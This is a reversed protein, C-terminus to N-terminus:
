GNEAYGPNVWREVTVFSEWDAVFTTVSADHKEAIDNARQQATFVGFVTMEAVEVVGTRSEEQSAKSVLYLDM